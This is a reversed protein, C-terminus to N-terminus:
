GAFMVCAITGSADKLSFYLHGSTHKHFNSIEGSVIINRLNNDTDIINKIYNLTDFVSLTIM